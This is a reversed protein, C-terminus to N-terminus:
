VVHLPLVLFCPSLVNAHFISQFVCKGLRLDLFVLNEFSELTCSEDACLVFSEKWEKLLLM